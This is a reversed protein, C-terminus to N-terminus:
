DRTEEHGASPSRDMLRGSPLPIPPTVLLALVGLLPLPLWRAERPWLRAIVQKPSLAGVRATADAVLADVMPTRDPRASWELATTVRDQLGYYRDALRAADGLPLRKAAGWEAGAVLGVVVSVGAAALAWPGLLFKLALMLAGTLTGYFLGRVAYHEARRWRVQAAIRRVLADLSM